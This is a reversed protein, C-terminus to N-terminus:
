IDVPKRGGPQPVVPIVKPEPPRPPLAKAPAQEITCPTARAECAIGTTAAPGCTLSKNVAIRWGAYREGDAGTVKKSWAEIARRQAQTLVTGTQAGGSVAGTCRRVAAHAAPASLVISLAALTCLLAPRM